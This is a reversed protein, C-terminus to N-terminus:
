ASAPSAIVAAIGDDEPLKARVPKFIARNIAMFAQEVHTRGVALWRKDTDPHAALNDLRRLLREEIEKNLNVNEVVISPQPTYGKVPLPQAAEKVMSLGLAGAMARVTSVYIDDKRKQADSLEAYPRMCPHTKAKADKVEGYTWGAAEKEALWSKHSEEPGNGALVGEVGKRASERQWEPAHEWSAQSNDGIAECYARNAEHAARACAEIRSDM